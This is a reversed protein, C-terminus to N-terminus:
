NKLVDYYPVIIFNGSKLSSNEDCNNIFKLESLFEKSSLYGNEEYDMSISWLTDGSNVQVSRYYKYLVAESGDSAESKTSFLLVAVIVFLILSLGLLMIHRKLEKERRIKNNLIRMESYECRERLAADM